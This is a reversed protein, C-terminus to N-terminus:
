TSMAASSNFTSSTSAATFIQLISAICDLLMLPRPLLSKSILIQAARLFKWDEFHPVFEEQEEIADLLEAGSSSILPSNTRMTRKKKRMQMSTGVAALPSDCEGYPLIDCLTIKLYNHTYTYKGLTYKRLTYKGLTDKGLTDKGLTYKKWPTNNRLINQHFTGPNCM